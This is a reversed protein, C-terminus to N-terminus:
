LYDKIRSYLHSLHIIDYEERIKWVTDPNKEVAVDDPPTRIALISM